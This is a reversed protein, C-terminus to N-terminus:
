ILAFILAWLALSVPMAFAVGQFLREGESGTENM